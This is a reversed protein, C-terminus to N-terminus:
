KKVYSMDSLRNITRKGERNETLFSVGGPRGWLDCSNLAEVPLGLWMAYFCSLLDGHSVLIVQEDKSEMLRDFFHVFVTGNMGAARQMLFCGIM